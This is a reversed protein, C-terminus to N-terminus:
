TLFSFCFFLTNGLLLGSLPTKESTKLVLTCGAALAPAIKWAAMVLPFNWPIIQGCVGVPERMTCCFMNGEIPITDGQIKDCWGAYYRFCKIALDVDMSSGYKKGDKALPKGNDLTEVEAFFEKQAEIGAAIKEIILGRQYASMRRWPAKPKFAQVAAAVAKDVDADTAEQVSVIVEENAPNVTEFTKDGSSNVFEGNIFLRTELASVDVSQQGVKAGNKGM